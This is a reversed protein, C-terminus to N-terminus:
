GNAVTARKRHFVAIALSVLGFAVMAGSNGSLVSALAPSRRQELKAIRAEQEKIIAQQDQIAKIAVPLLAIYNLSLEKQPGRAMVTEPLVKQVEQALFGLETREPGQSREFRYTVPHLELLTKLGHPSDKIDRKLRADSSNYYNAAIVDGDFRGAWITTTNFNSTGFVAAANATAGGTTFNSGQVGFGDGHTASGRVAAESASNNQGFVANGTAAIGYVATAPGSADGRVAYGPSASSSGFVGIQGGTGIVGVGTGTATGRIGPSLTSGSTNNIRLCGNSSTTSCSSNDPLTIASAEKAGLFAGAAMMMRVVFKSNM